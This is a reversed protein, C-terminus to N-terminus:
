ARVGETLLSKDFAHIGIQEAPLAPDFRPTYGSALYLAVAEPQRPGTTGSSPASAADTVAAADPATTESRRALIRSM